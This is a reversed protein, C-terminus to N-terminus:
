FYMMTAIGATPKAIFDETDILYIIEAIVSLGTWDGSLNYWQLGFSPYILNEAFSGTQRERASLFDTALFQPSTRNVPSDKGTWRSYGGGVFPSFSGSGLYNKFDLNFAQFGRAGGYGLTLGFDQFVNLQWQVGMFGMPGAAMIGIGMRLEEMLEASKSYSKSSISGSSRLDDGEVLFQARASLHFTFAMIAIATIKLM